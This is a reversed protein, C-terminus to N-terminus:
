ERALLALLQLNAEPFPYDGLSRKAVWRFRSPLEASPPADGRARSDALECRFFHLELRGHSYDHVVIPYESAVAVQLRTEEFCERAAAEAPSEDPQLKGGPFEWLGALPAGPPRLGILVWEGSVVVAVAIRTSALSDTDPALADPTARRSVQQGDM